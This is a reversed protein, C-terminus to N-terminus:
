TPIVLALSLSNRAYESLRSFYPVTSLHRGDGKRFSMGSSYM